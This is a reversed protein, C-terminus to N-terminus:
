TDINTNSLSIKLIKKLEDTGILLLTCGFYLLASGIATFYGPYQQLQLYKAIVQSILPVFFFCIEILLPSIKEKAQWLGNHLFYGVVGLGILGFAFNQRTLGIEFLLNGFNREDNLHTICELGYSLAISIISMLTFYISIPIQKKKMIEESQALYVSYICSGLIAFLNGLLINWRSKQNSGDCCCLYVGLVNIGVGIYEIRSYPLGRVFKWVCVLSPAISSLLLTHMVYTLEASYYFVYLYFCNLVSLLVIKLIHTRMLSYLGSAHELIENVFTPFNLCILISYRWMIKQFLPIHKLMLFYPLNVSCALLFLLLLLAGSIIQGLPKKEKVNSNFILGNGDNELLFNLFINIVKLIKALISHKKGKPVQYNNLSKFFRSFMKRNKKIM